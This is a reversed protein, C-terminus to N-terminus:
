PCLEQTLIIDPELKALLTRDIHFVSRGLHKATKVQKDIELSSLNRPLTTTSIKPLFLVSEPFNSDDSIGVLSQELDLLCVMETAAPLLSVIKQSM